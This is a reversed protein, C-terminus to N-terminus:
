EYWIAYSYGTANNGLYTNTPYWRYIASAYTATGDTTLDLEYMYRTSDYKFASLVLYTANRKSQWSWSNDLTLENHATTSGKNIWHIKTANTLNISNTTKSALVYYPNGTGATTPSASMDRANKTWSGQLNISSDSSTTAIFANPNYGYWYIVNDPM